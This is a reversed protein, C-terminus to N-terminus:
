LTQSEINKSLERQEEAFKEAQQKQWETAEKFEVPQNLVVQPFPVNIKYKDFILKMERNLDRAMQIRDGEACQAVIKIVVGSDALQAVGKYFPGDTIKPM